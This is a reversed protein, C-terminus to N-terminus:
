GHARPGLMCASRTRALRAGGPAGPHLPAPGGEKGGRAPLRLESPCCPLYYAPINQGSGAVGPGAQGWRVTRGQRWSHVKLGSQSARLERLCGVGM